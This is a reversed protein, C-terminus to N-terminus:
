LQNDSDVYGSYFPNYSVDLGCYQVPNKSYDQPKHIGANFAEKLIFSFNHWFEDEHGFGQSAIHALEHLDVFEILNQNHLRNKGTVKERLCLAVKEGKDETFSTNNKDVPDNEELRDSKYRKKLRTAITYGHSTPDKYKDLLFQILEQNKNNINALENAAHAADSFGGLVKYPKGDAAIYTEKARMKLVMILLIVLIAMTITNM